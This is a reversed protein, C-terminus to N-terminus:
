SSVSSIFCKGSLLNINVLVISSLMVNSQSWFPKWTYMPTCNCAWREKLPAEAGSSSWMFHLINM